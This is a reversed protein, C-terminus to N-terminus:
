FGTMWGVTPTISSCFVSCAAGFSFSVMSASVLDFLLIFGFIFGCFCVFLDPGIVHSLSDVTM